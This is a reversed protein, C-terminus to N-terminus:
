IHIVQELHPYRNIPISIWIAIIVFLYKSYNDVYLWLCTHIYLYIDM